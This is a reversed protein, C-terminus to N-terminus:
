QWLGPLFRYPRTAHARYDLHGPNERLHTRAWVSGGESDESKRSFLGCALCQMTFTVPEAEPRQDPGFEYERFRHIARTM